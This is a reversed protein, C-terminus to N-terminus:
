QSDNKVEVMRLMLLAELQDFAYVLGTESEGFGGVFGQKDDIQFDLTRRYCWKAAQQEKNLMLFRAALAYVATSEDETAPTGDSNYLNYVKGQKIQAKLFNVLADTSKGASHADMATYLNEVMNISSPWLYQKTDIRYTQPYFGYRNEPMNLLISVAHKYPVLWRANVKTLKEMTGVDLYFMSVLNAQQKGAGDYYDCPYGNADVDFSYITNALRGIQEDYNGLKKENAIFYAKVIRLDDVLATTAEGKKSAVDIKWYYYGTSHKFYKDTIAAYKEFLEADGLLAAYEMVQGMSESVSYNAPSKVDVLYSIIGQRGQLKTQLFDFASIEEPKPNRAAISHNWNVKAETLKPNPVNYLFMVPVMVVLVLLFVLFVIKIRM